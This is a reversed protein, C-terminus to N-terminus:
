VNYCIHIHLYFQWVLIALSYYVKNSQLHLSKVTNKKRFYHRLENTCLIIHYYPSFFCYKNM